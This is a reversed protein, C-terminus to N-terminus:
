ASNCIITFYSVLVLEIKIALDLYSLAEKIHSGSPLYAKAILMGGM